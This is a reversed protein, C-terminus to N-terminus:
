EKLQYVRRQYFAEEYIIAMQFATNNPLHRLEDYRVEEHVTTKPKTKTSFTPHVHGRAYTGERVVLFGPHLDFEGVEIEEFFAGQDVFVTMKDTIDEPTHLPVMRKSPKRKNQYYELIDSDNDM